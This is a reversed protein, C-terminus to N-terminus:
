LIVENELVNVEPASRASHRSLVGQKRNHTPQSARAEPTKLPLQLVPPVVIFFIPPEVPRNASPLRAAGVVAELLATFRHTPTSTDSDNLINSRNPSLSFM